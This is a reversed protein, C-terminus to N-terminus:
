FRAAAAAVERWAELSTPHAEAYTAITQVAGADGGRWGLQAARFQVPPQDGLVTRAQTLRTNAEDLRDLQILAGIAGILASGDEANAKLLKDYDALAGAADGSLSRMRARLRTPEP